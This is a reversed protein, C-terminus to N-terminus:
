AGGPRRVALAGVVAIRVRSDSHGSRGGVVSVQIPRALRLLAPRGPLTLAHPPETSRGALYPAGHPPRGPIPPGRPAASPRRAASAWRSVPLARDRVQM